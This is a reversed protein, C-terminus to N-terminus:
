QGEGERYYKRDPHWNVESRISVNGESGVWVFGSGLLTEIVPHIRDDTIISTLVPSREFFTDFRQEKGTERAADAAWLDKAASVFTEMEAESFAQKLMLYGFTGFHAIQQDTLV